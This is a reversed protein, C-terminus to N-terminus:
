GAVTSFEEKLVKLAEFYDYMEQKVPENMSFEVDYIKKGARTTEEARKFTVDGLYYHYTSGNDAVAFNYESDFTQNNKIKKDKTIFLPIKIIGLNSQGSIQQVEETIKNKGTRTQWLFTFQNLFRDSYDTTASINDSDKNYTVFIPCTKTTSDVKYGNVTGHEDLKWNLLRCVDQRTYKEYLALDNMRRNKLYHSKYESNSVELIDILQAKYEKGSLLSLFDCTAIIEDNKM